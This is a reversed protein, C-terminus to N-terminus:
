RRCVAQDSLVVRFGGEMVTVLAASTHSAQRTGRLFAEARGVRASDSLYFGDVAVATPARRAEDGAHGALCALTWQLMPRAM